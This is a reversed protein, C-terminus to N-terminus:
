FTIFLQKFAEIMRQVLQLPYKFDIKVDHDLYKEFKKSQMKQLARAASDTGSPDQKSAGLFKMQTGSGEIIDGNADVAVTDYLPDNIRGLDDTRIKRTPNGKIINEANDKAVSKVEASFGAQQHINQYKYDPNVKEQAIQKLGKSLSKGIENDMGSYAVYHQKAASGYRQVVEFASGAIGANLLNEQTKKVKDDM